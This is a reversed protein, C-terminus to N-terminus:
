WDGQVPRHISDSAQNDNVILKNGLRVSSMALYKSGINIMSLSLHEMRTPNIGSSQDTASISIQKANNTGILTFM